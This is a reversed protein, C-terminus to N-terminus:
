TTDERAPQEWSAPINCVVSPSVRLNINLIEASENWHCLAVSHCGPVFGTLLLNTSPSFPIRSKRATEPCSGILSYLTVYIFHSEYILTKISFPRGNLVSFSYTWTIKVLAAPAKCTTPEGWSWCSWTFISKQLCFSVKVGPVTSGM